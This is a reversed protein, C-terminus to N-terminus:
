EEEKKEKAPEVWQHKTMEEEKNGRLRMILEQLHQVCGFIMVNGNGIRVYTKIPNEECDKCSM